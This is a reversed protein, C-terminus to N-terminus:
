LKKFLDEVKLPNHIQLSPTSLLLKIVITNLIQYRGILWRKIQWKEATLCL